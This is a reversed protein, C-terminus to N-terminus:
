VKSKSGLTCRRPTIPLPMYFRPPRRAPRGQWLWSHGYFSAFYTWIGGTFWGTSTVMGEKEYTKLMELNGKVLPDQKDFLQGPYVAHCFAWQAKCPLYWQAGEGNLIIRDEIAMLIPLYRNGHIDYHRDRRECRRFTAYFDDYEKQWEAAQADKGLWRAADIAAKLGTLNWYV